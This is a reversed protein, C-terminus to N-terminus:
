NIFSRISGEEGEARYFGVASVVGGVRNMIKSMCVCISARISVYM